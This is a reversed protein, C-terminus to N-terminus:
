EHQVGAVTLRSRRRTQATSHGNRRRALAVRRCYRSSSGRVFRISSESCSNVAIHEFLSSEFAASTSISLLTRKSEKVTKGAVEFWVSIRPSHPLRVQEPLLQLGPDFNAFLVHDRLRAGEPRACCQCYM